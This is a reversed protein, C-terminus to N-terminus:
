VQKRGEVHKKFNNLIAQWGSRQMDEPNTREPEFSETIQVVDPLQSFQVKVHRGDEIDYEILENERVTTYTGTFDFSSSKDKATMVTKFKGGIRVDNEAAPAEWDDSAIAWKTIHEPSIWYEWVKKMPARVIASVIVTRPLRGEAIEKLRELAEPWKQEFMKEYDEVTDTDVSVETQGSIEKFTYNELAGRWGKMKESTTEEKGGHVEGLHEISIFEYPRNEAIRSVMGSTSDELPALFLIKSGKEWSGVFHSGSAFVDTWRRFTSDDLMTHWVTERTASIKISFHLKKM